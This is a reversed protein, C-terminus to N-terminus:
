SIPYFIIPRNIISKFITVLQQGLIITDFVFYVKSFYFILFVSSRFCIDMYYSLVVAQQKSDERQSFSTASQQIVRLSAADRPRGRQVSLDLVQRPVPLLFGRQLPQLMKM